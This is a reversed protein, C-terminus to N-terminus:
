RTRQCDTRPHIRLGKRWLAVGHRWINARIRYTELPHRLVARLAGATGAGRRVGRVCAVFPAEGTRYLAVTLALRETPEPLSMRYYGDVPYFPSVYLQKETEARGAGDPRVVYCHAGGYTNHVEAIVCTLAGDRDHCWFLSLPNFVYGLSRANALMTVRGGRLEIGREALLADVNDRISRRPDGLHDRAEFRALARLARPLRPLDNIDVFWQYSRHWMRHRVQGARVHTIDVEYLYSVV